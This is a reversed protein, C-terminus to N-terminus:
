LSLRNRIYMFRLILSNGIIHTRPLRVDAAIRVRVRWSLDAAREPDMLMKDLSAHGLQYVLCLESRPTVGASTNTYGLLRIINPHYFKSLVHIERRICDLAAGHEMEDGHLRIEPRLRKIAVRAQRQNRRDEFVGEYVQGFAGEGIKREEAFMNTWRRVLDSPVECPPGERLILDEMMQDNQQEAASAAVAVAVAAAAQQEAAAAAAAAVVAVAAAQQRERQEHQIREERQQQRARELQQCAQQQRKRQEREERQAQQHAQQERERQESEKRQAQQRQREREALQQERERQEREERARQQQRTGDAKAAALAAIL